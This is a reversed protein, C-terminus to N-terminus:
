GGRGKARSKSNEVTMALAFALVIVGGVIYASPRHIQWVGFCIAALGALGLLDVMMGKM